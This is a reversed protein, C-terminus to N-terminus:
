EKLLKEITAKEEYPSRAEHEYVKGKKDIIVYRPLHTLGLQSLSPHKSNAYVAIGPPHHKRLAAKWIRRKKDTNVNIFVLNKEGYFHNELVGKTTPFSVICSQCWSAWFDLVVVKGKFDSLKVKGKQAKFRYDNISLRVDQAQVFSFILWIAFFTQIIKKM